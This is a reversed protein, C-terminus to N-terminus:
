RGRPNGMAFVAKIEGTRPDWLRVTGDDSGTSVTRSDPSFQAASISNTHGKLTSLLKGTQGDWVNAVTDSRAADESVGVGATLILKGDDSYAFVVANAAPLTRLLRVTTADWLQTGCILVKLDPSFFCSSMDQKMPQTRVLAGTQTNWVKLASGDDVIAAITRGDPSFEADIIGLRTTGLQESVPDKERATKSALITRQLKWTETSVLRITGDNHGGSVLLLKGNPSFAISAVESNEALEITQLPEDRELAWVYAKSDGAGCLLKGDPSFTLIKITGDTDRREISQKSSPLDWFYLSTDLIGGASVITNGDPSYAVASAQSESGIKIRLEAAVLDWFYLTKPECATAITKDDPSFAAAYPRSHQNFRFKATGTAVDLIAFTSDYSSVALLQGNHSFTISRVPPPFSSDDSQIQKLLTGTHADWFFVNIDDAGVVMKSDPSVIVDNLSYRFGVLNMLFKGAQADWLKLAKDDAISAILKGDPSYVISTISGTHGTFVKSLKGTQTEWLRLNGKETTSKTILLQDDPSFALRGRIESSAISRVLKGTSPDYLAVSNDNTNIALTKGDHSFAISNQEGRHATFTRLLEGTQANWLKVTQDKSGSAVIEGNPSFVVSKVADGHGTIIVKPDRTARAVSGSVMLSLLLLQLVYLM